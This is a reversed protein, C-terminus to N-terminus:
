SVSMQFALHLAPVYYTSLLYHGSNFWIDSIAVFVSNLYQFLGMFYFFGMEEEEREGQRHTHM